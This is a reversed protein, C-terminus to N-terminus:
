VVSRGVNSEWDKECRDVEVNRRQAADLIYSPIDNNKMLTNLASMDKPFCTGGYGFKGDPGPVNTHSETIRVDKVALDKVTDYSIDLKNCISYMENCFSVKTALYCNKFYKVLEAEKNNIFSIENSKIKTADYASNILKNIRQKFLEDKDSNLLGFIWCPNNIFDQIFNKETLFEPMFYCNLSDCTGPVVTSRIIILPDGYERIDNVVSKVIDICCSGDKKMPTPVSIFVLDCKSLDEITTGLPNCLETNKDYIVFEIDNNKLQETAKGVFGYGGIGIKM